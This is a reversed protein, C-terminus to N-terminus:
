IKSSIAASGGGIFTYYVEYGHAEAAPICFLDALYRTFTRPFSERDTGEFM